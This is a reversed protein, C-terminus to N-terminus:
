NAIQLVKDMSWNVPHSISSSNPSILWYKGSPFSTTSQHYNISTKIQL